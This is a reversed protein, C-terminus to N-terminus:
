ARHPPKTKIAPRGANLRLLQLLIFGGTSDLRHRRRRRHRCHQRLRFPQQHQHLAPPLPIALLHLPLQFKKWSCLMTNIFAHRRSTEPSPGRRRRCSTTPSRGAIPHIVSLSIFTQDEHASLLNKTKTLAENFLSLCCMRSFYFASLQLKKKKCKTTNNVLSCQTLM